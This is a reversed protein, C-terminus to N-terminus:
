SPNVNFIHIQLLAPQEWGVLAREFNPANYHGCASSAFLRCCLVATSKGYHAEGPLGTKAFTYYDPTLEKLVIVLGDSAIMGASGIKNAACVAQAPM